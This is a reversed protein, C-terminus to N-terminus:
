ASVACVTLKRLVFFHKSLYHRQSVKTEVVSPKPTGM